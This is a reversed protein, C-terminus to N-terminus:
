CAPEGGDAAVLYLDHSVNSHARALLIGHETFDCVVNWGDLELERRDGTALDLVVLDFDTGNRETHTFALSSGDPSFAGLSHIADATALAREPGALYLRDRENGGVDRGFAAARRRGVRRRRVRARGRVDAPRALRRVGADALDAPDRHHRVPLRAAGRRRAM